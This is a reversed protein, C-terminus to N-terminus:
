AATTTVDVALEFAVLVLIGLVVVGAAVAVMIRQQKRVDM